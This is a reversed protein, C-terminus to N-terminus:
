KRGGERGLSRKEREDNTTLWCIVTVGTLDSIKDIRIDPPAGSLLLLLGPNPSIDFM